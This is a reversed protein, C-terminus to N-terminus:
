NLAKLRFAFDQYNILERKEHNEEWGAEEHSLDIMERTRKEKFAEVVKEMSDLEEQNFLEPKFEKVPVFREGTGGHDFLEEEIKIYAEGDLIGFLEHFHSPVPGFPIARYNCGSISYGTQKFHFFDSYFLLKNLKTKLPQLQHAFYLVFNAVKEFNPKVYGTFANAEMHFNWIYAMVNKLRDEQMMEAIKGTVKKFGNPSFSEKKEEVFRLFNEPKAALRILKANALSPVEGAEYNRYSNAGLDLVESMKAASLGYQTRILRIEDPFPIHHRERYQNYVQLTNLEDLEETTYSEGTDPDIMYHHWIEFTEKRFVEKAKEYKVDKKMM